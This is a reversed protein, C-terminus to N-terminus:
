STPLPELWAEILRNQLARARGNWARAAAEDGREPRALADYAARADLDSIMSAFVVPRDDPLFLYGALANGYNVVGTKAWVRLAEGPRRSASPEAHGVLREGAAAGAAGAARWGHRM